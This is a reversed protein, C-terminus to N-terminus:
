RSRKPKTGKRAAPPPLPPLAPTSLTAEAHDVRIGDRDIDGPEGSAEVTVTVDDKPPDLVERLGLAIGAM